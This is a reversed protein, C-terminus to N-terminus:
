IGVLDPSMPPSNRPSVPFRPFRSFQPIKIKRIPSRVKIFSSIYFYRIDWISWKWNLNFDPFFPSQLPSVSIKSVLCRPFRKSHLSQSSVQHFSVFIELYTISMISVSRSEKSTNLPPPTNIRFFYFFQLIKLKFVPSRIKIFNLIQFSSM